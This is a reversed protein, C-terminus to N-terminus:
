VVTKHNKSLVTFISAISTSDTQRQSQWTNHKHQHKQLTNDSEINKCYLMKFIMKRPKWQQNQIVECYFRYELTRSIDTSRHASYSLNLWKVWALLMAKPVIETQQRDAWWKTGSQFIEVVLGILYISRGPAWLIFGISKLWMGMILRLQVKHKPSFVLILM